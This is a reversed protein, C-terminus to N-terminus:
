PLKRSRPEYIHLFSPKLMGPVPVDYANFFRAAEYMRKCNSTSHVALRARKFSAFGLLKKGYDNGRDESNVYAAHWGQEKHTAVVGIIQNKAIIPHYRLAAAVPCDAAFLGSLVGRFEEHAHHWESSWQSIQDTTCFCILSSDDNLQLAIPKDRINRFGKLGPETPHPYDRLYLDIDAGIDGITMGPPCLTPIKPPVDIVWADRVHIFGSNPRKNTAHTSFSPATALGLRSTLETLGQCFDAAGEAMVRAIPLAAEETTGSM